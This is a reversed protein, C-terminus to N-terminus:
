DIEEMKVCYRAIAPAKKQAKEWAQGPNKARIVTGHVIPYDRYLSYQIYYTKNPKFFNFM